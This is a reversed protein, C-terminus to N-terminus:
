LKYPDSLYRVIPGDGAKEVIKDMWALLIGSQKLAWERSM